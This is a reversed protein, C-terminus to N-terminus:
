LKRRTRNQTESLRCSINLATTSNSYACRKLNYLPLATRASIDFNYDRISDRDSSRKYDFDPDRINSRMIELVIELVISQNLPFFPYPQVRSRTSSYLPIRKKHPINQRVGFVISNIRIWLAQDRLSESEIWNIQPGSHVTLLSSAPSLLDWFSDQM